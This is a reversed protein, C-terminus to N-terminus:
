SLFFHIFGWALGGIVLVFIVPLTIGMMSEREFGLSYVGTLEKVRNILGRM